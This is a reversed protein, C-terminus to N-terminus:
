NCDSNWKQDLTTGFIKICLGSPPTPFTKEYTTRWPEWILGTAGQVLIRINSADGPITYTNKWGMTTGTPNITTAPKGPQNYSILWNAVFGAGHTFKIQVPAPPPPTTATGSSATITSANTTSASGTNSATSTNTLNKVPNGSASYIAVNWTSPDIELYANNQGATGSEWVPRKGQMVALNGGAKLIAFFPLTSLSSNTVIGTFWKPRKQADYVVLNGNAEMVISGKGAVEIKQGQDIRQGAAMRLSAQACLGASFIVSFLFLFINTRQMIYIKKLFPTQLIAARWEYKSSPLLPPTPAPRLAKVM